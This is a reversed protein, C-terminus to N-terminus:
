SQGRFPDLATLLDARARGLAEVQESLVDSPRCIWPVVDRTADILAVIQEADQPSLYRGGARPDTMYVLRDRLSPVSAAVRAQDDRPPM